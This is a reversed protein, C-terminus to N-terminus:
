KLLLNNKRRITRRKKREKWVPLLKLIRLIKHLAMDWHAYKYVCLVQVYLWICRILQLGSYVTYATICIFVLSSYLILFHYPPFCVLFSSYHLSFRLYVFCVCVCGCLSRFLCNSCEM